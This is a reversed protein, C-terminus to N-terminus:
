RLNNEIKKLIIMGAKHAKKNDESDQSFILLNCESYILTKFKKDPERFCFRIDLRFIKEKIIYTRTTLNVMDIKCIEIM